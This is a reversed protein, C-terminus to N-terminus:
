LIVVNIVSEACARRLREHLAALAPDAAMLARIAAAEEPPLEGMLLATLRMELKERPTPPTDPNM